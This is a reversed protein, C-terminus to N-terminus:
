SPHWNLLVDIARSIRCDPHHTDDTGCARCITGYTTGNNSLKYLLDQYAKAMWPQHKCDDESPLYRGSMIWSRVIEDGEDLAVLM